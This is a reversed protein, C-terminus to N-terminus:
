TAGVRVSRQAWQRPTAVAVITTERVVLLNGPGFIEFVLLLGSPEDARAFSLELFREGSPEAVARLVAGTLLRRLEKAFPGLTDSHPPAEVLLAGYRGPVLVLERRGLGPVRLAVSWGGAALDFVKDVRARDLANLERALALVDLSTFRDKPTPSDM